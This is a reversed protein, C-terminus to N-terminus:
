IPIWAVREFPADLWGRKGGSDDVRVGVEFLGAGSAHTHVFGLEDEDEIDPECLVL